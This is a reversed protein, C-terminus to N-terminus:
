FSSIYKQKTSSSGRVKRTVAKRVEKWAEAVDGIVFSIIKIKTVTDVNYSRTAASRMKRHTNSIVEEEVGVANWQWCQM